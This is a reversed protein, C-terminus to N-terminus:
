YKTPGEKAKIAENLRDLMSDVLNKLLSPRITAWLRQIHVWLAAKSDFKKGMLRSKVFSWLHEIPNLDPSYPPPNILQVRNAAFWGPLRSRTGNQLTVLRGMMLRSKHKSDNDQYLMWGLPMTQNAFPLMQIEMINKYAAADM